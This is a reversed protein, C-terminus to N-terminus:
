HRMQTAVEKHESETCSGREAIITNNGGLTMRRDPMVWPEVLVVPDEVTVQYLLTNGTRTFKEIVRMQDSHFYGGRALWTEDSFGISDLVLTDGEWRGVTYGMYTYQAARRPDHPKGDIAVMRFEAYGGAGDSGGRYIMTIDTDTHFIRAPAGQRPIGLPLCTMVPDDRNSWQDMEIMKDWHEPKYIPLRMDLRATSMFPWDQSQNTWEMCNKAQFPTCRRFMGGVTTGPAGSGTFNWGGGGWSGTLDPKGSPLRPTPAAAPDGQPGGGGRGGGFGGGGQAIVSTGIVALLAAACALLRAHNIHQKM